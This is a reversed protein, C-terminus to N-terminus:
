PGQSPLRAVEGGRDLAFDAATDQAIGALIGTLPNEHGSRFSALLVLAPFEMDVRLKHLVAEDLERQIIAPPLAAVGFGDAVLRIMTAVSAICNVHLAERGHGAFMREIVAHPGSNRAVSIIPFAALDSLSLTEAGIDLKPSGVGACQFIASSSTLSTHASCRAAHLVLDLSGKSLRDRLHLTTDSAIEIQLRPFKKHVRRLFDPFWSHVISEIVGISFTGAYGQKDSMDEKMERMLSGNARRPDAGQQWRSHPQGRACRPRVPARRFGARADRHPKSVAAQTTHLREATMRFNKLKALLVFTELFRINMVKLAGVPGPLNADYANPAHDNPLHRLRARRVSGLFGLWLGGNSGVQGISAHVLNRSVCCPAPTRCFDRWRFRAHGCAMLRVEWSVVGGACDGCRCRESVVHLNGHLERRLGGVPRLAIRNRAARCAQQIAQVSTDGRDSRCQDSALDDQQQRGDEPAIRRCRGNTQDSSTAVTTSIQTPTSPAVSAPWPPCCMRMLASTEASGRWRSLNSLTALTAVSTVSPASSGTAMSYQKESHPREDGASPM